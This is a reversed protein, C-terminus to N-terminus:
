KFKKKLDLNYLKSITNVNRRDHQTGVSTLFEMQLQFNTLSRFNSLFIANQYMFQSLSFAFLYIKIYLKPFKRFNIEALKAACERSTRFDYRYSGPVISALLKNCIQNGCLRNKTGRPPIYLRPSMYAIYPSIGVALIM